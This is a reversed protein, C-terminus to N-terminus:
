SVRTSAARTYAWKATMDKLIVSFHSVFQNICEPLRSTFTFHLWYQGRAPKNRKNYHVPQEKSWISVFILNDGVREARVGQELLTTM